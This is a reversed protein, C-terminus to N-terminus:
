KKPKKEKGYKKAQGVLGAQMAKIFEQNSRLVELQLARDEQRRKEDMREKMAAYARKHTYKMHADLAARTPTHKKYCPKFGMEKLMPYDPSEPHLMCVLDMGYDQPIQPDKDTFIYSGDPRKLQFTQWLLWQPQYSMVGTRNDWVKVYGKFALEEVTYNGAEDQGSDGEQMYGPPIVDEGSRFAFAAIPRQGTEERTTM